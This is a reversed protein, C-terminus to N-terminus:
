DKSIEELMIINGFTDEFLNDMGWEKRTLDDRFNVGKSKLREKESAVDNVGFVIIPLGANYVQEQYERAWSTGRPELLLSTGNPDAASVVIALQGAPDFQKTQFGLVETYFTHAAIPDDVFVSTMTIKMGHDKKVERHTVCGQGFVLLITLLFTVLIRNMKSHETDNLM